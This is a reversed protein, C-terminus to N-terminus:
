FRYQLGLNFGRIDAEFDYAHDIDINLHRYGLTAVFEPSFHFGLEAGYQFGSNTASDSFKGNEDYLTSKTKYRGFGVLLGVHIPSNEIHFKPRINVGIGYGEVKIKDNDSFYIEGEGIWRYEGELGITVNKALTVDYGAYINAPLKELDEEVSEGLVSIEADNMLGIELGIYPGQQDAITHFPLLATLIIAAKKM